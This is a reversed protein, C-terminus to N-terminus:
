MLGRKIHEAMQEYQWARFRILDAKPVGRLIEVIIRGGALMKDTMDKDHEEQAIRRLDPDAINDFRGEATEMDQAIIEVMDLYIRKAAELPPMEQLDKIPTLETM